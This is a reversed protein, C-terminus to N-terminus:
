ANREMRDLLEDFREMREEHTSETTQAEYEERFEESREVDEVLVRGDDFAALGIEPSVGDLDVVDVDDTGLERTLAVILAIRARYRQGDSLSPDFAVAVDVDSHPGSTGRAHSGFLVGLDVPHRELVARIRDPDVDETDDTQAM